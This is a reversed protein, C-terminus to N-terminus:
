NYTDNSESLQLGTNARFSVHLLRMKPLGCDFSQPRGRKREFWSAPSIRSFGLPHDQVLVPWFVSFVSYGSKPRHRRSESACVFSMFPSSLLLFWFQKCHLYFNNKLVLPSSSQSTLEEEEALVTL